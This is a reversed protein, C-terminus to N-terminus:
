ISAYHQAIYLLKLKSNLIMVLHCCSLNRLNLINNEPVKATKEILIM